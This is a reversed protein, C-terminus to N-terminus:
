TAQPGELRREPPRELQPAPQSRGLQEKVTRLIEEATPPEGQRRELLSALSRIYAEGFASTVAAATTASIASGIVTGVGPVLKLLSGVIARGTITAGTGTLTSGLLTTFFGEPLSLGFTASIGAVMGIQIPVILTADAFPIPAAGIGAASAAATAVIMRAHRKKLEIDVKQAAVFARRQGEPVLTMTLEVLERLGMPELVHGDDLEERLARVRVVNQAHPLLEQVHARFGHDARAKTIVGVVPVREALTEVLASEAEEVRRLDEEVCLWAVHIHRNPNSETQRATVFEVLAKLSRQNDALELGRTDVISLPVGEKTIERTHLTVPRGHGTTAFDGQFVSNVLTSKGVGTRGAILVTVHGRERLAEDLANKALEAVNFAESM